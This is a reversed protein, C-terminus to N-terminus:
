LISASQDYLIPVLLLVLLFFSTFNCIKEKTKIQQRIKYSRAGDLNRNM